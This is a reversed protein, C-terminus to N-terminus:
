QSNSRILELAHTVRPDTSVRSFGLAVYFQDADSRTTRLRLHTFHRRAHEIVTAVLMRGTGLRRDTPDVYLRRVRGTETDTTYPDRNLGCLGVLTDGDRAALLVEGPRDFRNTGALWDGRLRLIAHFEERLSLAILADLDKPLETIARVRVLSPKQSM